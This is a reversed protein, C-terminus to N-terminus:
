RSVGRLRKLATVASLIAGRLGAAFFANVAITDEVTVVHHWWCGPM